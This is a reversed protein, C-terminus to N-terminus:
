FADDVVTFISPNSLELRPTRTTVVMQVTANWTALGPPLTPIGISRSDRNM